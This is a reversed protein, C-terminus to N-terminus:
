LDRVGYRSLVQRRVVGHPRDPFLWSSPAVIRQADRVAVVMVAKIPYEGQTIVELPAVLEGFESSDAWVLSADGSFQWGEQAFVDVVSVMVHSNIAINRVTKPSAIHAILIRDRDCSFVEKPSVNPRGDGDATAIWCLVSEELSSRQEATLEM